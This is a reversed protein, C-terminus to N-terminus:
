RKICEFMDRTKINNVFIFRVDDNSMRPTPNLKNVIVDLIVGGMMLIMTVFVGIEVM